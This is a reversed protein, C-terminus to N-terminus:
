VRATHPPSPVCKSYSHKTQARLTSDHSLRQSHYSTKCPNNTSTLHQAIIAVIVHWNKTQCCELKCVCLVVRGEEDDLGRLRLQRLQKYGAVQWSWVCRLYGCEQVFWVVKM